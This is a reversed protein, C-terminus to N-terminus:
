ERTTSPPPTSGGAEHKDSMRELWVSSGMWIQYGPCSKFTSKDGHLFSAEVSRGGPCPPSLAIRVRSPTVGTGNAVPHRSGSPWRELDEIRCRLPHPDFGGARAPYEFGATGGQGTGRRTETRDRFAASDFRTGSPMGDGTNLAPERGSAPLEGYRFSHPDFGGARAPKGTNWVPRAM